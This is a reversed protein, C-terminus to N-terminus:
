KLNQEEDIPNFIEQSNTFTCELEEKNVQMTTTSPIETISILENSSEDPKTKCCTIETWLKPIKKKFFNYINKFSNLVVIITSKKEIRRRQM